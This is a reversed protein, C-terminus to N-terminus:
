GLPVPKSKAFSEEWHEGDFASTEVVVQKEDGGRAIAPVLVSVCDPNSRPRYFSQVGCLKCFLHKAKRTNFVYETM